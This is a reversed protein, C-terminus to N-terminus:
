YAQDPARGSRAGSRRARRGAGLMAHARMFAHMCARVDALLGCAAHLAMGCMIPRPPALGSRLVNFSWLVGGAGGGSVFVGRWLEGPM